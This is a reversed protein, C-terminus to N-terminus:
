AAKKGVSDDESAKAKVQELAAKALGREILGKADADKANFEEGPAIAGPFITVLAILKM